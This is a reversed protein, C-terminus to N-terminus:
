PDTEEYSAVRYALRRSLLVVPQEPGPLLPVVRCLGWLAPKEPKPDRASAKALVM